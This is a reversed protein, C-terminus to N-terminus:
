SPRPIFGHDGDSWTASTNRQHGSLTPLIVSFVLALIVVFKSCNLWLAGLRGVVPAMTLRKLMEHQWCTCPSSCHVLAQIM